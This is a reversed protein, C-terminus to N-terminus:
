GNTSIISRFSDWGTKAGDLVGTTRSYSDNNNRSSDSSGSATRNSLSSIMPSTKSSGESPTIGNLGFKWHRVSPLAEPFCRLSSRIRRYGWSRHEKALADIGAPEKPNLWNEDSWASAPVYGWGCLVREMTTNWLGEDRPYTGELQRARVFAYPSSLSQISVEIAM